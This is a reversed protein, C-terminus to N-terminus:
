EEEREDDDDDNDDYDDDDDDDEDDDDDDDDDDDCTILMSHVETVPIDVNLILHSFIKVSCALFNEHAM